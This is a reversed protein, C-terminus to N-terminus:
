PNVKFDQVWNAAAVKKVFFAEGVAVVPPTDWSGFSYAHISYNNQANVFKYVTDDDVIPFSLQTDLQGAQPWQSSKISFNQPIANTQKGQVVEGVFTIKFAAAGSNKIFAGDGPALQEAPNDWAGFSKSNVNYQGTASNYKYIVTDDPADAFLAGVENVAAKLPNAIMSFGPPVNINVFGVANVSYVTQAVSTGLGVAGLAATVILTKTRM